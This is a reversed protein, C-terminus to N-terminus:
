KSDDFMIGTWIESHARNKIAETEMLGSWPHNQQVKIIKFQYWVWATMAIGM